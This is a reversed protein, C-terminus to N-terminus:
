TLQFPEEKLPIPRQKFTSWIRSPKVRWRGNRIAPEFCGPWLKAMGESRLRPGDGSYCVEKAGGAMTGSAPKDFIIHNFQACCNGNTLVQMAFDADEPCNDRWAAKCSNKVLFVTNPAHNISIPSGASWAWLQHGMGAIDVNKYKLVWREIEALGISPKEQINKGDRRVLFKKVNDDIQWHYQDGDSISKQKIWNRVFPLGGNNKPLVLLMSPGYEKIYGDWFQPEIVIRYDLGCAALLAPVVIKGARDRSPIYIPFM